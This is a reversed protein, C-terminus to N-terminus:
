KNKAVFTTILSYVSIIILLCGLAISLANQWAGIFMFCFGLTTVATGVMLMIIFVALSCNRVFKALFADGLVIIGIAIMLYPLFGIIINALSDKIFMVGFAILIAGLVADANLVTKKQLISNVVYMVGCLAVAIGIFWSLLDGLSVSCCLLIGIVLAICSVVITRTHNNQFHKNSM